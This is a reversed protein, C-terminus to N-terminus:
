RGELRSRKEISRLHSSALRSFSMKTAELGIMTDRSLIGPITALEKGLFHALDMPDRFNMWVMVDHRGIVRALWVTNPLSVFRDIVAPLEQPSVRMGFIAFIQYGVSVPYAFAVIRTIQEDLLRQLRGSANSRSIGLKKALTSLSQRGDLEMERLIMLDLQDVTLDAHPQGPGAAAAGQERGNQVAPGASPSSFSTKRWGQGPSLYPFSGRWETFLMTEISKIGPITGLETLLFNSLDAASAFLTLIIIDQWGVGIIIEKVQHLSHLERAVAYLEGPSVQIGTLAATRYGLATPDTFAAVRVVKGELLRQLRIGAYTRSVGLRAALDSVPLRGDDAMEALIRRDLSDLQIDTELTESHSMALTM